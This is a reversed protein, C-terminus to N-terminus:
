LKIGSPEVVGTNPDDSCMNEITRLDGGPDDSDYTVTVSANVAKAGAPLGSIDFTRAIDDLNGPDIDSDADFTIQNSWNGTETKALADIGWFTVVPAASGSSKDYFRITVTFYDGDLACVTAVSLSARPGKKGVADAPGVGLMMTLAAAGICGFITKEIKNM